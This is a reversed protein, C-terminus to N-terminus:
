FKFGAYLEEPLCNNSPAGRKKSILGETGYKKYAKWLRRFHRDTINLLESAKMQSIRKESVKLVLDYISLEKQSMTFLNEM